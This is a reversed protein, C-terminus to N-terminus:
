MRSDKDLPIRQSVELLYGSLGLLSRGAGAGGVGGSIVLDEPQPLFLCVSRPCILFGSSLWPCLPFRRIVSTANCTESTSTSKPYSTPVSPLKPPLSNHGVGMICWHVVSRFPYILNYLHWFIPPM